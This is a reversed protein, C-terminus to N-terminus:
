TSAHFYIVTSTISSYTCNIRSVAPEVTVASCNASSENSSHKMLAPSGEEAAVDTPLACCLLSSADVSKKTIHTYVGAGGKM